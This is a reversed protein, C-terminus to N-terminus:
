TIPAASHWKMKRHAQTQDARQHGDIIHNIHEARAARRIKRQYVDSLEQNVVDVTPQKRVPHNHQAAMREIIVLAEALSLKVRRPQAPLQGLRLQFRQLHLQLGVKEEVSKM